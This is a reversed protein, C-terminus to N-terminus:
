NVYLCLQPYVSTNRSLGAFGGHAYAGFQYYRPRQQNERFMGRGKGPLPLNLNELYAEMSGWTADEAQRLQNARTEMACEQKEGMLCMNQKQSPVHLRGLVCSSCTQVHGSQVTADCVCTEGGGFLDPTQSKGELEKGLGFFSFEQTLGKVVLRSFEPTYRGSKEAMGGECKGHVYKHDCRCPKHMIEALRCHTSMIKWGKQLLRGEQNRLNVRCGKIVATYPQHRRLIDQLLPLRWADCKESLEWTVHIGQQVCHHWIVSCGVYIKLAEQRKAELDQKQEPTRQNTRQMPSYPGCPPSLWVHSPQENEIQELVLRVGATTSLDHNSWLSCRSASSEKGTHARVATTLVSDKECALELLVPREGRALDTFLRPLANWSEDELFQAAGVSM